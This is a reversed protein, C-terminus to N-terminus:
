HVRKFNPFLELNRITPRINPLLPICIEGLARQHRIHPNKDWPKLNHSQSSKNTGFGCTTAKLHNMQGLAVPKNSERIPPTFILILTWTLRASALIQASSPLFTYIQVNMKLVSLENSICTCLLTFITIM